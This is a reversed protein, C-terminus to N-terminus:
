WKSTTVSSVKCFQVESLPLSFRKHTSLTFLIGSTTTSESSLVTFDTTKSLLVDVPETGVPPTSSPFDPDIPLSPFNDMSPVNEVPYSNNVFYVRARPLGTGNTDSFYFYLNM